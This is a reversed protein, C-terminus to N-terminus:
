SYSLVYLINMAHKSDPAVTFFGVEDMAIFKSHYITMETERGM